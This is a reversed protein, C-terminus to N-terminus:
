DNTISSYDELIQNLPEIEGTIANVRCVVWVLEDTGGTTEGITFTRTERQTTVTVKANSEFLTADYNGSYNHVFFTFWPNSSDCRYISTTEPGYSDIDDVDLRLDYQKANEDYSSGSVSTASIEVTAAATKNYYCIHHLTGAADNGVLHSDLDYPYQGWTLVFTATGNDTSNSLYCNLGTIDFGGLAFITFQTSAFLESEDVDTREDTVTVTYNGEPLNTFRYSSGSVTAVYEVQNSDVAVVKFSSGTVTIPESTIAECITGSVSGKSSDNDVLVDLEINKTLNANATIEIVSLNAKYGATIALIVYHGPTIAAFSYHGESDTVVFTSSTGANIVAQLYSESTGDYKALRISAGSVTGVGTATVTGSLAATVEPTPPTTPTTSGSGSNNSQSPNVTVTSATEGTGVVVTVSATGLITPILDESAVHIVTGEAGANLVLTIPATCTFELPVNSTVTAGAVTCTVPVSTNSTGTITVSAKADVNVANITGNNVIAVTANERTVTLSANAGENVVVRSALANITLVNNLADEYWTNAKIQDITISEFTGHNVVDANPAYVTLSQYQYNGEPITFEIAEETKIIINSNSALAKVLEEQNTVTVEGGYVQITVADTAGSKTTATITVTGAKLATFKGNKDPSAITTDSSSWYTKDNSSKPYLTRNLDYSDGVKLVAAKTKNNIRVVTAGKLVTVKCSLTYTKSKAKIKCTVTATGKAKAKVEGNKSVSAVKHNSTTWAYEAKSVKNKVKLKTKDGTLLTVSTKSFAPKTAANATTWNMSTFFMALTLVVVLLKQMKKKLSANQHNKMSRSRAKTTDDSIIHILGFSIYKNYSGNARIVSLHLNFYFSYDLCLFAHILVIDIM